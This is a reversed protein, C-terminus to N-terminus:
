ASAPWLRPTGLFEVAAVRRKDEVDKRFRDDTVRAKIPQWLLLSNGNKSWPLEADVDRVLTAAANTAPGTLGSVVLWVNGHRQRQAVIVGYMEWDAAKLPVLHVDMGLIMASAKNRKVIRAEKHRGIAELERWTWAFASRHQKSIKPPWVFYFPLREKPDATPPPTKFPERKFMRALMIESALSALPSGLSILSREDDELLAHWQETAAKPATMRSKLLVEEIKYEMHVDFKCAEGLLVATSRTDWPSMDHRQAKKRPKSALLFTVKQKEVL